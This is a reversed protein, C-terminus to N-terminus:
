PREVLKNQGSFYTYNKREGTNQETVTFEIISGGKDIRINTFFTRTNAYFINLAEVSEPIDQKTETFDTLPILYLGGKFGFDGAIGFLYSENIWIFREFTPVMISSATEAHVVTGWCADTDPKCETDYRFTGDPSSAPVESYPKQYPLPDGFLYITTTGANERIREEAESVIDVTTVRGKNKWWNNEQFFVLLSLIVAVFLISGAVKHNKKM